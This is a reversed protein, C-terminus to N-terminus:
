SAWKSTESSYRSGGFPGDELTRVTLSEATARIARAIETAEMESDPRRRLSIFLGRGSPSNSSERCVIMTAAMNTDASFSQDHERDAAITLVVM